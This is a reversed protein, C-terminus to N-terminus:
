WARGGRYTGAAVLAELLRPEAALAPLRRRLHHEFAAARRVRVGRACAEHDAARSAESRCIAALAAARQLAHLRGQAAGGPAALLLASSLRHLPPPRPGAAAAAQISPLPDRAAPGAAAAAVGRLLHSLMASAAAGAVTESAAATYAARPPAGDHGGCCDLELDELVAEPCSGEEGRIALGALWGAAGPAWAEDDAAPWGVPASSDAAAAEEELLRRLRWDCRHAGAALGANRGAHTPLGAAAAAQTARPRPGSVPATADRPASLLDFDSLAHAAAALARLACVSPDADAAAASGTHVLPPPDPVPPLSLVPACGDDAGQDDIQMAAAVGAEPTGEAAAAAAQEGDTAGAEPDAGPSPSRGDAAAELKLSVQGDEGEQQQQQQVAEEQQQDAEEKPQQNLDVAEEAVEASDGAAAEEEDEGAGAAAAAEDEWAAAARAARRRAAAEIAALAAARGAGGGAKGAKSASSRRGGAAPAGGAAAASRQTPVPTGNGGSGTGCGGGDEDDGPVWIEVTVPSGAGAEGDAAVALAAASAARQRAKAIARRRLTYAWTAELQAAQQALRAEHAEAHLQARAVAAAAVGEQQQQQQQQQQSAPLAGYVVDALQRLQGAPERWCWPAVTCSGPGDAPAVTSDDDVNGPAAAAALAV